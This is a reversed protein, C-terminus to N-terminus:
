SAYMSVRRRRRRKPKKPQVLQKERQREALVRRARDEARRKEEEPARESEKKYERERETRRSTSSYCCCGGRSCPLFSLLLFLPLSLPVSSLLFSLSPSGFSLSLSGGHERGRAACEVRGTARDGDNGHRLRPDVVAM